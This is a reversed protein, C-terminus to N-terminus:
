DNDTSQEKKIINGDAGVTVDWAEKGVMVSDLYYSTIKGNEEIKAAKTVRAGPMEKKVANVVVKPLKDIPMPERPEKNDDNKTDQSAPTKEDDVRLVQTQQRVLDAPTGAISTPPLSIGTLAAFTVAMSTKPYM